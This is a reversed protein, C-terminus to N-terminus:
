PDDRGAAQDDTIEARALPKAGDFVMFPSLARAVSLLAPPVVAKVLKAEPGLQSSIGALKLLFGLISEDDEPLEVIPSHASLGGLVRADTLAQRFGGLKDVLGHELAQQGTWVKGRAVADVAEPSMHRGESVRGIFLDYFQKVKQGLIQREDDTFPRFFSEADARPSSRFLEARVGLKDLLGSVDVKGYFIGISGTVTAPNAYIDRGAVSAYYGGSAAYSGMSVVLPKERALLMAERLIVDAALSSGGGTEIRFVVAKVSRDERMKHLARVITTSGALRIDLIPIYQSEGDVMDGSLYVVGVKDQDGWHLPARTEATDDVVRAKHGIVESMVRDMEDEYALTDVFGATRAESALYPGSALRRKVEAPPLHRGEGIDRQYIGDFQDVLEQHDLHAVDSGGSNTIEEAALKHAGIRVFDARVGLKRLLGGLYLYRASNGAYHLGGAPNMAVRDAHACLYLSKGEADELHCVVKKGHARLLKVADALEEAHALSSAPEGHVHLEIAEIEPDEAIRWLRRLLRVHGRVGPAEHIRIRAVHGPLTIGPERFTRLAAGMYFGAGSKTYGDGFLGGGTLQALGANLDLGASAVLKNDRSPDLMALDGKLRGIRPVDLGITARPVSAGKEYLEAEFGVEIARSGLPRVAFGLDYRREVRVGGRSIPANFDRAVAAMSLWPFLRMTTGATVTFLDDLDAQSSAGWGLTAGISLVDGARAALGWRIWHYDASFPPPAGPPPAMVDVRLGTGLLWFPAALDFSHGRNPLPSADGTWTTNWRLEGGPMFALNAPNVAISSSDDDSAIHKGPDPVPDSARPPPLASATIAPVSAGILALAALHALRPRRTM